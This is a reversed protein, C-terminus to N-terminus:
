PIRKVVINAVEYTAEDEEDDYEAFALSIIRSQISKLENIQDVKRRYQKTLNRVKGKPWEPESYVFEFRNHIQQRSQLCTLDHGTYYPTIWSIFKQEKQAIIKSLNISKVNGKIIEFLDEKNM